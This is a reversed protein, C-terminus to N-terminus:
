KSTQFSFSERAHLESLGDSSANSAHNRRSSGWTKQRIRLSASEPGVGFAQEKIEM